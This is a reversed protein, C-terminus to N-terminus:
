GPDLILWSGPDVLIWALDKVVRHHTRLSGPQCIFSWSTCSWPSCSRASRSSSHAGAAVGEKGVDCARENTSAIAHSGCCKAPEQHLANSNQISGATPEGWGHAAAAAAAPGAGAAAAAAVQQKPRINSRDAGARWKRMSGGNQQTQKPAGALVLVHLGSAAAGQSLTPRLM